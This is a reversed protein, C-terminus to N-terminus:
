FADIVSAMCIRSHTVWNVYEISCTAIQKQMIILLWYLLLTACWLVKLFQFCIFGEAKSILDFTEDTQSIIVVWGQFIDRLKLSCWRTQFSMRLSGKTEKTHVYGTNEWSNDSTLHIPVFGINALANILILKANIFLYLHWCFTAPLLIARDFCVLTTFACSM